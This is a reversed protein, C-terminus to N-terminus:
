HRMERSFTKIRRRKAREADPDRNHVESSVTKGYPSCKQPAKLLFIFPVQTTPHEPNHTHAQTNPTPHNRGYCWTNKRQFQSVFEPIGPIWGDRFEKIGGLDSFVILFLCGAGRQARSGEM